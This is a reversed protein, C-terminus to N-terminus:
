HGVLVCVLVAAALSHVAASSHDSSNPNDSKSDDPGSSQATEKSDDGEISNEKVNGGPGVVIDSDPQKTSFSYEAESEEEPEGEAQGESDDKGDAETSPEAPIILAQYSANSSFAPIELSVDVHDGDIEIAPNGETTHAAGDVMIASPLLMQVGGDKHVITLGDQTSLRSPGASTLRVNLRV